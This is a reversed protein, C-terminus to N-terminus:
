SLEINATGDSAVRTDDLRDRRSPWRAFPLALIAFLQPNVLTAHEPFAVVSIVSETCGLTAVCAALSVFLRRDGVPMARAANTGAVVTTLLAAIGLPGLDAWTQFLLNHASVQAALTERGLRSVGHDVFAGFGIGIPSNSELWTAVTWLGIRSDISRGLHVLPDVVLIALTGVPLALVVLRSVSRDAIALTVLGALSAVLPGRAGSALVVIALVVAFSLMGRSPRSSRVAVAITGVLAPAALAAVFGPAVLPAVNILGLLVPLTLPGVRSPEPAVFPVLALALSGTGLVLAWAVRDPRGSRTV